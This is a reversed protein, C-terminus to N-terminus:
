HRFGGDQQRSLLVSVAGHAVKGIDLGSRIGEPIALDMLTGDPVPAGSAVSAETALTLGQEGM